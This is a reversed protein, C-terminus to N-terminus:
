KKEQQLKDIRNSCLMTYDFALLIIVVKIQASLEPSFLLVFILVFDLALKVQYMKSKM